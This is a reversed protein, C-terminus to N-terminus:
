YVEDKLDELSLILSLVFPRIDDDELIKKELIRYRQSKPNFYKPLLERLLRKQSEVVKEIEKKM